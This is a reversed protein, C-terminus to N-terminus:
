LHKENVLVYRYRPKGEEFDVLAQNAETMPRTQIWPKIQKEAAVAFMDRIDDPSGIFSGSIGVEDFLTWANIPPLNGDDPAGVQVFMGGVKLLSLYETLPMKASSVTCIIIDLSRANAKAWDADESTAIYQDAGLDLADQRKDSRRSIGVVKDAGLGKAFLIGFHGLGGIGIIGVAKGPGCGHRKLPAFMTVGACLMPAAAESSLGDPIKVVFNSNTRNYDAYGGYSMGKGDPYVAGYTLARNRACYNPRGSSCEACDSDMCSYAQAGVGVRDGVRIDKVNGGVRVAKGVIEHGVCCPYPTNDWGNRLMHIDTGCVGCHTVQIDVDDEEWVKPKFVGWVMNGAAADPNHGLWGEFQANSSM